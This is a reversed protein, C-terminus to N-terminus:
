ESSTLNLKSKKRYLYVGAVVVVIVAGVLVAACILAVILPLTASQGQEEAGRVTATGTTAQQSVTALTTQRQQTPLNLFGVPFLFLM